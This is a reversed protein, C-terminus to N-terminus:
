RIRLRRGAKLKTKTSIKNLRAIQKVSVGNKYAIKGLTDGRKVVYYRSRLKTQQEKYLKVHTFCQKDIQLTDSLLSGSPFYIVKSPDIKEGKFRVEFHLHPGTSRGTNGSLGIIEGSRVPKGPYALLQDFHAYLTELGNYHRVVVVYGYDTSRKAVRVVGDFISYVPDGVEMRVDIGYHFKPRKGWRRYGFGSTVDGIAPPHFSCDMSDRLKLLITDNMERLSVKYPNIVVTDWDFPYHANAPIMAPDFKFNPDRLMDWYTVDSYGTFLNDFEGEAEGESDAEDGDSMDTMSDAGLTDVLLEETDFEEELLLSDPKPELKPKPTIVKQRPTDQTTNNITQTSAPVNVVYITKNLTIPTETVVLENIKPTQITPKSYVSSDVIASAHMMSTSDNVLGVTDMLFVEAELISDVYALDETFKIWSDYQNKLIAGGFTDVMLTDKASADALHYREEMHTLLSDYKAQLIAASDIQVINKLPIPVIPADVPVQAWLPCVVSTLIFFLLIYIYPFKITM